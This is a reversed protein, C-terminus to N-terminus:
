LKKKIQEYSKINKTVIHNQKIYNDYLRIKNKINFDMLSLNLKELKSLDINYLNIANNMDNLKENFYNGLLNSKTLIIKKKLLIAKNILSSIQFVVINANDFYQDTNSSFKCFNFYKYFFHNKPYILSKPHYCFIIQSRYKKKLILLFKSLQSFYIKRQEDSPRGDRMVRDPHDFGNDVYLIYNKNKKIRRSLNNDYYKSNIRIIRNFYFLNKIKFKKQFKQSVSNKLDNIRKQSSEFYLHVRPLISLLIFIKFILNYFIKNLSKFFYNKKKVYTSVQSFYGINNFLIIKLNKIRILHFLFFSQYSYNLDTFCYANNKIIKLFNVFSDIKIYKIDPVKYKYINKKSHIFNIKRADVFFLKDKKKIFKKIYQLTDLNLKQTGSPINKYVIFYYNKSM